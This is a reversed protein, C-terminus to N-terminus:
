AAREILTASGTSSMENLNKMMIRDAVSLPSCRDIFEAHQGSRKMVDSIEAAVQRSVSCAIVTRPGSVTEFRLLLNMPADNSFSREPQWQLGEAGDLDSALEADM